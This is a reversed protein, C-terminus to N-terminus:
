TEAPEPALTVTVAPEPADVLEVADIAGADGLDGLAPRLADLHSSSEAIVVREVPAKLSRKAETKAKRVEGLAWAATAFM